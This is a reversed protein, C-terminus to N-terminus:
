EVYVVRMTNTAGAGKRWGTVVIIADGPKMFKREIGFNKAAEIRADVDQAWDDLRPADYFYPLIGRYLHAQRTTQEFRSVAIIPCRPRYQSILHASRGTTTIVIIAAANCKLSANVASVAIATTNDTPPPTKLSM